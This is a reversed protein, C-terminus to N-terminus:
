AQLRVRQARQAFYFNQRNKTFGTWPDAPKTALKPVRPEKKPLIELLSLDFSAKGRHTYANDVRVRVRMGEKLNGAQIESIFGWRPAGFNISAGMIRFGEMKINTVKGTHVTGRRFQQPINAVIRFGSPPRWSIKRVM